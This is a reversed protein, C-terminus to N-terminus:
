ASPLPSSDLDSARAQQRLGAIQQRVAQLFLQEPQPATPADGAAAAPRTARDLLQRGYEMVKGMQYPHAVLEELLALAEEVRDDPILAALQDLADQARTAEVLEERALWQAARAEGDAVTADADLLLSIADEISGNVARVLTGLLEAGPEKIKGQEIRWIYNSNTKAAQAVATATLGQQTRLHRIYGGVAQVSM